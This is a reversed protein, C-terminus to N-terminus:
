QKILDLSLPNFGSGGMTGSIVTGGQSVTGSFGLPAYGNCTFTLDVTTGSHDGAVTASCSVVGSGSISGSGHLAHGSEQLSFTTQFTVAQGSTGGHWSGTLGGSPGGGDSGGCGGLLTAAVALAVRTRHTM